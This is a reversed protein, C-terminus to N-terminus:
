KLILFILHIHRDISAIAHYLLIILLCTGEKERSYVQQHPNSKHRHYSSSWISHNPLDVVSLDNRHM